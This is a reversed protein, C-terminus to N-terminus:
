PAKREGVLVEANDVWLALYPHDRDTRRLMLLFPGDFVLQRGIKEEHVRMVARSLLLAGKEDLKFRISQFAEVVPGALKPATIERGLLEPYHHQLDFDFQPVKLRDGKELAEGEKEKRIRLAVEVTELLSRGPSVRALLIEEGEQEPKLTVVYEPDKRGHAYGYVRVQSAAQLQGKEEFEKKFGFGKVRDGAAGFPLGDVPEFPNRFKLDRALFAYALVDAPDGSIGDLFPDKGQHFTRELEANIRGVIGDGLRGALAVFSGEPLDGKKAGGANLRDAIDWPKDLCLPGGGFSKMEDWALQFTACYLVNKGAEMPCDLHPTILTRKLDTSKAILHTGPDTTFFYATGGAVAVIAAAAAKGKWSGLWALFGVVWGARKARGKLTELARVHHTAVTSESVEMREAIATNSLNEFYRM